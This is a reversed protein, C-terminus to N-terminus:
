AGTATAPNDLVAMTLRSVCIAKGNEDSIDIAWVQTSRGIHVPRAEGYVLGTRIAALHNANIDLGVCSHGPTAAMQAAVSGLTEALVVSAGGHLIGM